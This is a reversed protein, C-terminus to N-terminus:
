GNRPGEALEIVGCGVRDGSNGSPQSTLDDPQAHVVVARGAIADRGSLSLTSDIIDISAIGSSDAVINGLDGAHHQAVAQTPAGHQMGQAAFHEGASSADPASCDGVEHIHLGHVGPTLGTIEGHMRLFGNEEEIDLAGAVDSDSRAQLEARATQLNRAAGQARVAPESAAPVETAAAPAASNDNKGTVPPEPDPQCAALAAAVGAALVLSRYRGHHKLIRM